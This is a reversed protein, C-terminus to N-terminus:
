PTKTRGRSLTRFGGRDGVSAEEEHVPDCEVLLLEEYPGGKVCDM